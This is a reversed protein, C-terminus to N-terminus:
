DAAKRALRYMYAVFGLLAFFALVEVDGQGAPPIGLSAEAVAWAHGIVFRVELFAALGVLLLPMLAVVMVFFVFAPLLLLTLLLKPILPWSVTAEIRKFVPGLLQERLELTGKGLLAALGFWALSVVAYLGVEEWERATMSYGVWEYLLWAQVAYFVFFKRPHRNILRLPAMWQSALKKGMGM